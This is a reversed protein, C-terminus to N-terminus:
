NGILKNMASVLSLKEKLSLAKSFKSFEEDIQPKLKVIEKRGKESLKIRKARKDEQDNFETILGKSLLRKIVEIGTPAELKHLEIIEMKRYSEVQDLHLLFSYGDLSSFPSDSIVSKTQKKIEKNLMSIQFALMLDLHDNHSNTNDSKFYKGSLWIAFDEINESENSKSFEDLQDILTHILKAKM